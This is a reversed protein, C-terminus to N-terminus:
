KIEEAFCVYELSNIAEIIESHTKYKKLEKGTITMSISYVSLGSNLYAPNAEIDDIKLGLMRLTTIFDRLYTKSKLELHLEFHNSRDQLFGELSPLLALCCLLALFFILAATYFGAGISLGLIGCAWLAVSTTLGKIQNKSSYLISYSSIIAIGIVAAASILTERSGLLAAGYSDLLMASASAVCVLIFTRLGAAHRKNARECGIVAAFVFSIGIRFLISATSLGISWSGLCRAIPDTLEISCLIM